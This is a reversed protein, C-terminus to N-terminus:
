DFLSLTEQITKGEDDLLDEVEIWKISDMFKNAVLRDILKLDVERFFGRFVIEKSVFLEWMAYKTGTKGIRKSFRMPLKKAFSAPQNYYLKILSWTNFDIGVRNQYDANLLFKDKLLEIVFSASRKKSNETFVVNFLDLKMIDNKTMENSKVFVVSEVKVEKKVDKEM